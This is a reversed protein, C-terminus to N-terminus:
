SASNLSEGASWSGSPRVKSADVPSSLPTVVQLESQVKATVAVLPVSVTVCYTSRVTSAAAGSPTTTKV